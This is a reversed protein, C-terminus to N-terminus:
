LAKNSLAVSIEAKFDLSFLSSNLQYNEEQCTARLISSLTVGFLADAVKDIQSGLLRHLWCILCFTDVQVITDHNGHTHNAVCKNANLKEM